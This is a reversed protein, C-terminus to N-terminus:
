VPEEPGATIDYGAETITLIDDIGAKSGTEDGHPHITTIISGILPVGTVAPYIFGYVTFDLDFVLTRDDNRSLEPGSSYSVGNLGVRIDHTITLEPSYTIKINIFPNFVALIQELIITADMMYKSWLSLRFDINWPIPHFSQSVFGQGVIQNSLSNFPQMKRTPDHTIGTISCSLRPLLIGVKNNSMNNIIWQAMKTKMDFSIPVTFDRIPSGDLNTRRVEIQNFLAMFAVITKRISDNYFYQQAM